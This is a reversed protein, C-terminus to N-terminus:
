GEPPFEFYNKRTEQVGIKVLAGGKLEHKLRPELIKHFEVALAECSTNAFRKNLDVGDYKSRIERELIEDLKSRDVALGTTENLPGRCTVQIKYHHGHTGYCIGYVRRNEEPSWATNELHHISRIVLQRTVEFGAAQDNSSEVNSASRAEAWIEDTEFLRIRNLKLTPHLTGLSTEIEKFFYSVLNETTPVVDKFAPVDFSIHHHDFDATVKKLIVDLDTVNVVLGTESDIPGEVFMELTYNHGHGYPTYCAGFVARNQEPTFKKQEYFHATSFTRRRAILPGNNM